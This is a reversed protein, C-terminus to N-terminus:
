ALVNIGFDGTCLKVLQHPLVPPMEDASHNQSNREAQIAIIGDILSLILHGLAHIIRTQEIDDLSDYM